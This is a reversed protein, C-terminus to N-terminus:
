ELISKLAAEKEPGSLFDFARFYRPQEAESTKPNKLIKALYEPTVKARSRWLIDRGAPTNWNMGVEKLWEGLFADWQGAAGIGLAELFWRDKGDHHKALEAWVAPAQPSKSGHLALALERQVQKSPDSALKGAVNAVNLGLENAIRIGTIRVDSDKDGLALDVATKGDGSLKALVWLLRAKYRPDAASEIAHKVPAFSKTGGSVLSTFALYRVCLNPNELAQISGEVTKFDFKPVDYKMGPPAVRFIRGRDLDQQNHGGVGPDYWDSVFLSGDPATCVDSPRFWNDRAGHLV